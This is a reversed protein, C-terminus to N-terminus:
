APETGPNDPYARQNRLLEKPNQYPLLENLRSNVATNYVIIEKSQCAQQGLLFAYKIIRDFDSDIKSPRPGDPEQYVRGDSTFDAGTLSITKFGMFAATQLATFAITRATFVGKRLDHSWGLREQSFDDKQDGSILDPDTELIPTLEAPRLRPVCYYRNIPEIVFTADSKQRLLEPESEAVYGLGLVSLVIISAEEMSAKVLSMRNQFFDPDTAIFGKLRTNTDNTIAIAGNVGFVFLEESLHQWDITRSSPGTAAILCSKGNFRDHLDNLSASRCLKNGHLFVEWEGSPTPKLEVSTPFERMHRLSSPWLLRSLKRERACSAGNGEVGLLAGLKRKLRAKRLKRPGIPTTETMM